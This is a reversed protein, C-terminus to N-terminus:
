RLQCRWGGSSGTGACPGVSARSSAEGGTSGAGRLSQHCYSEYAATYCCALTLERPGRASGDVGIPSSGLRSAKVVPIYKVQHLQSQGLMEPRPASSQKMTLEYAGNLLDSTASIEARPYGTRFEVKRRPTAPPNRPPGDTSKTRTRKKNTKM